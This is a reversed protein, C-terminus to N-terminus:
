PTCTVGVGTPQSMLYHLRFHSDRGIDHQWHVTARLNPLGPPPVTISANSDFNVSFFLFSQTVRSRVSHEVSSIVRGADDVIEILTDNLRCRTDITSAAHGIADDGSEWFFSGHRIEESPPDVPIFGTPTRCDAQGAPIPAVIVDTAISATGLVGGFSDFWHVLHQKFPTGIPLPNPGSGPPVVFGLGRLGLWSASRPLGSASGLAVDLDGSLTTMAGRVDTVSCGGATREGSFFPIDGGFGMPVQTWGSTLDGALGVQNFALLIQDCDASTFPVGGLDTAGSAVLTRCADQTARPIQDM